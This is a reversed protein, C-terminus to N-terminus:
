SRLYTKQELGERLKEINSRHKFVVLGLMIFFPLSTAFNNICLVLFPVITFFCISAVSVYKTFYYCISWIAFAFVGIFTSFAFTAGIGTAVGKGGKFDYFLPFIHGVVAMLSVIALDCPNFGLLSAVKVPIFGKMADFIFTLLGLKLGAVRLMNTAGPNNSGHERPDKTNFVQSLVISTSFSGLVYAGTASFIFSFIEM